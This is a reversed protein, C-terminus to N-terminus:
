GPNEGSGQFCQRLNIRPRTSKHGASSIRRISVDLDALGLAKVLGLGLPARRIGLGAAKAERFIQAEEGKKYFERPGPSHRPLTVDHPRGDAGRVSAMAPALVPRDYKDELHHLFTCSKVDAGLFVATAGAALAKALPSRESYPADDSPHGALLDEAQPGFGTWANTCHGSHPADPNHRLFAAPLEGVWRVAEANTRVYPRFSWRKNVVGMVRLSCSFAPLLVTGSAGVAERLAALVTEAGGEVYGLVSLSSHVLLVDGERVGVARLAAVIKAQTVAGANVCGLYGYEGLLCFYLVSRKISDEDFRRGHAEEVGELLTRLDTRGDALAAVEALPSLPFPRRLRMRRERPIRVLDCPVISSTRTLVIGAAYTRWPSAVPPLKRVADRHPLSVRRCSEWTAERRGKLLTDAPGHSAFRRAVCVLRAEAVGSSVLARLRDAKRPSLAFGVFPRTECDASVNGNETAGTVEPVADPHAYRDASFDTIFGCGGRDLIATLVEGSPATFPELVVLAGTADEGALFHAESMLHVIIPEAIEGVSGRVLCGPTRDSDVIVVDAGGEPSVLSLRGVTAEWAYPLRVDGIVSVGDLV